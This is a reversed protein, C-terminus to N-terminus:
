APTLYQNGIWMNRGDPFVIQSQGAAVQMITGPYKNGDSWTVLVKRGVILASGGAAANMAGSMQVAAQVEPRNMVGASYAMWQQNHAQAGQLMAAQQAAPDFAAAGGAPAAGPASRQITIPNPQGGGKMRAAESEQLSNRRVALGMPDKALEGQWHASITTWDAPSLKFHAMAGQYGFAQIAASVEVYDEFSLSTVGKKKAIAANYLPMYKMAVQGMLSMDQMRATWGTKAAEWDAAAVGLEGVKKVQETPDTIGDLEAGLDAYRELSIGNIPAYPDM